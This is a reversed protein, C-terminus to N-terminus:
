ALLREYPARRAGAPAFKGSACVERVAHEATAQTGKATRLCTDPASPICKQSAGVTLGSAQPKKENKEQEYLFLVRKEKALFFIHAKRVSSFLVLLSM